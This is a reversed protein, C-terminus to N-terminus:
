YLKITPEIIGEPLKYPKPDSPPGQDTPVEEFTGDPYTITTTGNLNYTRTEGTPSVFAKVGNSFVKRSSGDFHNFEQGEPSIMMLIGFETMSEDKYEMKLTHGANTYYSTRDDRLTPDVMSITDRYLMFGGFDSFEIILEWELIDPTNLFDPKECIKVQDPYDNSVNDQIALTRVRGDGTQEFFPISTDPRTATTKQIFPM